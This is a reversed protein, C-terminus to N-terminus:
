RYILQFRTPCYRGDALFAKALCVGYVIVASVLPMAALWTSLACLLRFTGLVWAVPGFLSFNVLLLFVTLLVFQIAVSYLIAFVFREVCIKRCELERPSVPEITAAM